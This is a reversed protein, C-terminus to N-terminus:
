MSDCRADVCTCFHATALRHMGDLIGVVHLLLCPHLWFVVKWLCARATCNARASDLVGSTRSSAAPLASCDVFV